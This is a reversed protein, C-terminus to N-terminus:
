FPSLLDVLQQGIRPQQFDTIQGRGGYSIRANAMRDYTITNQRTIDEPRIIGAIQLDRLEFNVRVEQNGTVVLHGNPLVQVVRAAIRLSISEDRTITGTGSSTSAGNTAVGQSLDVEDSIFRRAFKEVSNQLGYFTAAGVDDEGSRSRDTTNELSASDDIEIVVTLIDGVDKARRDGFLSRPGSHWLSAPSPGGRYGVASPISATPYGHAAPHRAGHGAAPVPAVPGQAGVAAGGWAAPASPPAYRGGAGVGPISGVRRLANPQAAAYGAGGGVGVGQLSGRAEVNPRPGPPLSPDIPNKAEAVGSFSPARGLHDFKDACGALAAVALLGAAARIRRRDTSMHRAM